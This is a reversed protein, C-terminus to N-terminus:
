NQFFYLISKNEKVYFSVICYVFQASWHRKERVEVINPEWDNPSINHRECFEREAIDKEEKEREEDTMHPFFDREDAPNVVTGKLKGYWWRKFFNRKEYYGCWVM